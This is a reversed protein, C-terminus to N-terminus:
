ASSLSKAPRMGIFAVMRGAASGDRRFSHYRPDGITCGPSHEIASEPIGLRLLRRHLEGRLDLRFFERDLRFASEPFLQAVDERVVYREVSACPSLYVRLRDPNCGHRLLEEVGTEVIGAAIGRWGAHLAAILPPELSALLVACCDAIRVCLFLGPTATIM